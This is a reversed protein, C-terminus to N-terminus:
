VGRYARKVKFSVRSRPNIDGRTIGEYGEGMGLCCYQLADSVHSYLNKDPVDAYREAGRVQMRRYCHGGQLAKRLQRCSPSIVLRPRGLLTLKSLNVAVAERRRVWDNTSAPDISLGARRFVEFPTTEDTQARQEGAPDGTGRVKAGRYVDKFHRALDDSFRVAGMDDSILEDIVQLQGDRPDRQMIVAAPTLGFDQGFALPQGQIYPLPAPACHIADQYEPFVPKGERPFGYNSEVFVKVFEPDSANAKVIEQYYNKPLHALNEANPALGSPQHFLHYGEPREEEFVKYFWHDVDPPNTDMWIGSWAEVGDPLERKAPFRRVRTTLMKLVAHPVEKAENIYGGTLELSLLNAVDEPTDLARFLIESEVNDHKLTFKKESDKWIGMEPRVWQRFTPITTDRLQPYTNRIVVWRSHRIGDLCVPSQESRRLLEICCVSSKGSGVPGEAARVFGDCGLFRGLTPADSADYRIVAVQQKQPLM